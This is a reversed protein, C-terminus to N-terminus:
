SGASEYTKLMKHWFFAAFTMLFSAIIITGGLNFIPNQRTIFNSAPYFGTFAFPIIYTIITRIVKNYITTPYKSFDNVMYFVHIIHGSRKTKFAISAFIIKISTYISAAFPIVILLLILDLITLSVGISGVTSV